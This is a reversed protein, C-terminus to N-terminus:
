IEKTLTTGQVDNEPCYEEQYAKLKQILDDYKEWMFESGTQRQYCECAKMLRHVDTHNFRM